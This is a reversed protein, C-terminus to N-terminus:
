GHPVELLFFKLSQERYRDVVQRGRTSIVFRYIMIKLREIPLKFHRNYFRNAAVKFIGNGGATKNDIM